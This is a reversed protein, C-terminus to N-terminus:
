YIPLKKYKVRWCGINCNKNIKILHYLHYHYYADENDFKTILIITPNKRIPIIKILFNM